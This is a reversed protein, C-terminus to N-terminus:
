AIAADALAAALRADDSTSSAWALGRLLTANEEVVLCGASLRAGTHPDSEPPRNGSAHFAGLWESALQAFSVLGLAAIHQQTHALWRASPASSSAAWVWCCMAASPRTDKACSAL